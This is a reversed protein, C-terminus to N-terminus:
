KKSKTEQCPQATMLSNWCNSLTPAEQFDIKQKKNGSLTARDHPQELLKIVNPGGPIVSYSNLKPHSTYYHQKIQFMIVTPAVMQYIERCYNLLTPNHVVSRTNTKFYVVYVEDFRLLTAFLRIDSLTLQDGCIFRNAKLIREIRDFSETLETIAQDYAPQSTAFGCRYVGDNITPYIWDDVEQMKGKLASPALDLSPNKAFENFRNNFMQIIDSSENNVITDKKTDFLIPVTYKGETDGVREYVDRISFSDFLPYPDCGELAASFPGGKGSTNNFVEDSDKPAGFIWGMHTDEDDYPKTKQWTPHVITVSITDQLGKLHRVM